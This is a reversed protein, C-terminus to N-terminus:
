ATLAQTAAFARAKASAGEGFWSRSLRSGQDGSKIAHDELYTVANLFGWATGDATSLNQGPAGNTIEVFQNYRGEFGKIKEVAEKFAQLAFDSSEVLNPYFTKMYLGKQTDETIKKEAMKAIASQFWSWQKDLAMRAKVRDGDFQTTHRVHIRADKGGLAASLTNWCVVRVSTQQVVTPLTLDYSTALLLYREVQDGGLDITTDETSKALAWVKRGLDLCGAVDIEFGGLQGVLSRFFELVEGPQVPKYRDSVISLPFKNDSRYLVNKGPVQYIGDHLEFQAPASEASWGLGAASRWKDLDAGKEMRAGLGHWPMESEERSAMTQVMHAM